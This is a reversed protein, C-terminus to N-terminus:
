KGATNARGVMRDFENKGGFFTYNTRRLLPLQKSMEEWQECWYAYRIYRERWATEPNLQAYKEYAMKLDPWVGPRKWYASQIEPDFKLYRAINTHANVLTLPVRGGWNTSRVCARGFALMQEESGYWKPELYYLKRNCAYFDNSNLNMARGFWLDM